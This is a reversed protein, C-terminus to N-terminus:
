GLSWLSDRKPPPQCKACRKMRDDIVWWGTSYAWTTDAKGVKPLGPHYSRRYIRHSWAATPLTISLTRLQGYSALTNHLSLQSRACHVWSVVWRLTRVMWY